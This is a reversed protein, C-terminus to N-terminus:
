RANKYVQYVANGEWYEKMYQDRKSKDFIFFNYSSNLNRFKILQKFHTKGFSNNEWTQYINKPIIFNNADENNIKDGLNQLPYETIRKFFFSIKREIKKLLM